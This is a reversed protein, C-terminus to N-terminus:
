HELGMHLLMRCMGLATLMLALSSQLQRPCGSCGLKGATSNGMLCTPPRERFRDQYSCPDVSTVRQPVISPLNSQVGCEPSGDGIDIAVLLANISELRTARFEATYNSCKMFDTFTNTEGFYYITKEMICSEQDGIRTMGWESFAESRPTLLALVGSYIIYRFYDAWSFVELLVNALLTLPNPIRYSSPGANNWNHKDSCLAQTDVEHDMNYVGADKLHKLLPMNLDGLFMGQLVVGHLEGRNSTVILGGDDVLIWLIDENKWIHRLSQKFGQRLYSSTLNVGVAGAVVEENNKKVSVPASLFAGKTHPIVSVSGSIEARRLAPNNLPDRWISAGAKQSEPFFRTLGFRTFVARGIIDESSVREAMWKDLLPKTWRQSWVLGQVLKDNCSKKRQFIDDMLTALNEEQTVGERGRCYPWPAVVTCTVNPQEDWLAEHDEIILHQSRKLTLLGLSYSSNQIPSYDYQIGSYAVRHSDDIRIKGVIVKQGNSGRVMNNRIAEMEGVDEEVDLLDIHPPGLLYSLQRGLRPHMVLFGNHNIIFAYGNPGLAEFPSLNKLTQIPVDIGAVGLLESTNAYDSMNYVPRTLSITMEETVRDLYFTIMSEALPLAEPRALVQLYDQIKTRVSSSTTIVSYQGGTSCAMQKLVATPIPHPGVAYTFVRVNKTDNDALYRKFVDEPWETGGDSFLMITKHCNAGEGVKRTREFEKFAKYAFILAESYSAMGGDELDDIARYLLKKNRTSAQVLPQCCDKNEQRTENAKCYTCNNVWETTDNFAAVNVFDNEGLTDILTKVAWKMISFTQGHVSGSRDMLIIMDKPPVSGQVYWPRIRADYLDILNPPVKWRTAPYVRMFGTQAGFYQWMLTLDREFNERFVQDVTSSWELGNLIEPDQERHERINAWLWGEYVELPVHIGSQNYRVEVGLREDYAMEHSANHPDLNKMLLPRSKNLTLDDSWLYTTTADELHDVIKQLANRKSTLLTQIDEAMKRVLELPKVPKINVSKNGNFDTKLISSHTKNAHLDILWKQVTNVAERFQGADLRSEQSNVCVIFVVGITFIAACRRVGAM